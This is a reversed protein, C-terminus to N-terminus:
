VVEQGRTDRGDASAHLQRGGGDRRRSIANRGPAAIRGGNDISRLGRRTIAFPLKGMQRTQDQRSVM